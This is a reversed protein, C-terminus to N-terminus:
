VLDAAEDLRKLIKPDKNRYGEVRKEENLIDLEKRYKESKKFLPILKKEIEENRKRQIEQNEEHRAKAAQGASNTKWEGKRTKFAKRGKDTLINGLDGTDNPYAYYRKKGAATLSGDKNQYRRIGWKMGLIGHHCIADSRLINLSDHTVFEPEYETVDESVNDLLIDLSDKM